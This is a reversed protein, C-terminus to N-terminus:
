VLLAKTTGIFAASATLSIEIHNTPSNTVTLTYGAIPVTSLDIFVTFILPADLCNANNISYDGVIIM